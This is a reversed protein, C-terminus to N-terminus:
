ADRGAHKESPKIEHLFEQKKHTYRRKEHEDSGIKHHQSKQKFFVPRLMRPNKRVAFGIVAECPCM